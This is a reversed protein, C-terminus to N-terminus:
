ESDIWNMQCVHVGDIMCIIGQDADYFYNYESDNSYILYMMEGNESCTNSSMFDASGIGMYKIMINTIDECIYMKKIEIYGSILIKCAYKIKNNLKPTHYQRFQPSHPCEWIKHSIQKHKIIQLLHQAWKNDISHLILNLFGNISLEIDQDNRGYKYEDSQPDIDIDIDMNSMIDTTNNISKTNIYVFINICSLM